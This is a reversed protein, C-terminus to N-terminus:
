QNLYSFKRSCLKYRLIAFSVRYLLSLIQGTFPTKRICSYSSYFATSRNLPTKYCTSQWLDGKGSPFITIVKFWCRPLNQNSPLFIKRIAFIPMSSPMLGKWQMLKIGKSKFENHFGSGVDSTNSVYNICRGRLKLPM